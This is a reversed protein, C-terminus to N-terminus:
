TKNEIIIDLIQQVYIVHWASHWFTYMFAGYSWKLKYVSKVSLM